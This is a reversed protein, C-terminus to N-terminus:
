SNKAGGSTRSAEAAALVADMIKVYSGCRCLNGSLFERVEEPTPSPNQEILAKTGLIFGPTCFSCQFAAHDLYAQQIPHLQGDTSLGEITTLEKGHATAALALCSSIPKGDALVTCAGCLGIGCGERVSMLDFDRRLVDLLTHHPEVLVDRALGNVTLQVIKKM